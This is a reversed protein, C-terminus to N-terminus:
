AAVDDEAEGPSATAANGGVRRASGAHQHVRVATSDIAVLWDLEGAADADTQARALLRAWTGDASWRALRHYATQWPGFRAPLGRWPSGTRYKWCIAEVVQRHDRSRRGSRGPLLPQMWEWAQDSVVPLDGSLLDGTALAGDGVGTTQVALHRDAPQADQLQDGPADATPRDARKAGARATGAPPAAPGALNRVQKVAPGVVQRGDSCLAETAPAAPLEVDGTVDPGTLGEDALRPGHEGLVGPVPPAAIEAPIDQGTTGDHANGGRVLAGGDRPLDRARREDRSRPPLDGPPPVRSALPSPRDDRTTGRRKNEGNGATEYKRPVPIERLQPRFRASPQRRDLAQQM